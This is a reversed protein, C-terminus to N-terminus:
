NESPPAPDVPAPGFPAPPNDTLAPAPNAVQHDQDGSAEKAEDEDAEDDEDEKDSNKLGAEPYPLPTHDRSFLDSSGPVGAKKLASKWGDRFDRNFVGQLEAKVESLVEFKGEERAEGISQICEAELKKVKEQLQTLEAEMEAKHKAKARAKEKADKMKNVTKLHEQELTAYNATVSEMVEVMAKTHEAEKGKLDKELDFVRSEM